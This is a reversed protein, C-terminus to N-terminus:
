AVGDDTCQTNPATPCLVETWPDAARGAEARELVSATLLRLSERHLSLKKPSKKMVTKEKRRSRRAPNYGHLRLKRRGSNLALLRAAVV